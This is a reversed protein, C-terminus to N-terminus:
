ASASRRSQTILLETILLETILSSLRWRSLGRNDLVATGRRGVAFTAIWDGGDSTFVPTEEGPLM